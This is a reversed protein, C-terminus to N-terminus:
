FDWGNKFSIDIYKLFSKTHDKYQKNNDIVYTAYDLSRRHITRKMEVEEIGRIAFIYDMDIKGVIMDMEVVELGYQNVLDPYSIFNNQLQPPEIKTPQTTKQIPYITISVAKPRGVGLVDYNTEYIFSFPSNKDLENKAKMLVNLDFKSLSKYNTEFLQNLENLTYTKQKKAHGNFQNIMNLIPLIRISHINHLRMIQRTDIFTYNSVVDILLKAIKSYMDIEIKGKGYIMKIRPILSIFEEEEEKENVFTITTKSMKKLNNKIDVTSSLGTYNLMDNKEIVFTNLEKSHDFNKVITSLYYIIKIVTKNKNTIVNEIFSNAIKQHVKPKNLAELKKKKLQSPLM